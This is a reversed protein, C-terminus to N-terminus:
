PQIELGDFIDPQPDPVTVTFSIWVDRDTTKQAAPNFPLLNHFYLGAAQRHETELLVTNARVHAQALEYVRQGIHCPLGAPIQFSHLNYKIAYIDPM